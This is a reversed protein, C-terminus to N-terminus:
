LGAITHVVTGQNIATRYYQIQFIDKLLEDLEPDLYDDTTRAVIQRLGQAACM